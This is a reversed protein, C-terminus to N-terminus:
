FNQVPIGELPPLKGRAKVASELQQVFPHPTDNDRVQQLVGEAESWNGAEAFRYARVIQAWYSSPAEVILRDVVSAVQKRKRLQATRAQWVAAKKVDGLRSYAQQFLYTTAPELTASDELPSLWDLAKQANGERLAVDALGECARHAGPNLTLAQEWHAVAQETEGIQLYAQGLSVAADATARTELSRKLVKIAEDGKGLSVLTSGYATLFEEPPITLKRLEPDLELVKEFHTIAQEENTLDSYVTGLYLHGVVEHEPIEVLRKALALAEQLRGLRMNCVMLDYLGSADKPELQLFRGLIPAALSWQSQMLYAQGWAHLDVASAAGHQEFLRAAERPQGVKLHIRARLAFVRSDDPYDQQYAGVERIAVSVDGSKVIQEVASLAREQQRGSYWLAGGVVAMAVVLLVGWRAMSNRWTRAEGENVHAAGDKARPLETM